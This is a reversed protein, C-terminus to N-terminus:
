TYMKNRHEVWDGSEILRRMSVDGMYYYIHMDQGARDQVLMRTYFDNYERDPSYGELSDLRRGIKDNKLEYVDVVVAAPEVGEYEQVLGPFGGLSFLVGKVTTSGLYEANESLGTGANNSQGKRLTGYVAVLDGSSLNATSPVLRPNNNM